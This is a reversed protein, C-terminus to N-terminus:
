DVDDTEVGVSRRRPAAARIKVVRLGEVKAIKRQRLREVKAM